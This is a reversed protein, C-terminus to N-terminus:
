LGCSHHDAHAHQGAFPVERIATHIHDSFQPMEDHCELVDTIRVKVTSKKASATKTHM